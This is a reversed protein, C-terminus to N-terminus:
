LVVTIPKTCLRENVELVGHRNKYDIESDEEVWKTELRQRMIEYELRLMQIYENWM